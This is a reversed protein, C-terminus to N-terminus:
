YTLELKSKGTTPHRHRLRSTLGRAKLMQPSFIRRVESIAEYARVGRDSRWILRYCLREVLDHLSETVHSPAPGPGLHLVTGRKTSHHKQILHQVDM